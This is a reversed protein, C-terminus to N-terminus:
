VNYYPMQVQSLTEELVREDIIKYLNAAFLENFNEYDIQPSFMEKITQMGKAYNPFFCSSVNSYYNFQKMLKLRWSNFLFRTLNNYLYNCRSIIKEYIPIIRDNM